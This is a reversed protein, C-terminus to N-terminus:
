RSTRRGLEQALGLLIGEPGRIYCLRYTDEYEVAPVNVVRGSEGRKLERVGELIEAGSDRKSTVKLKRELRRSCM